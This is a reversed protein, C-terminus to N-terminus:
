ERFEQAPPLLTNTRAVVVPIGIAGRAARAVKELDIETGPGAKERLVALARTESDAVNQGDEELDSHVELYLEGSRWGAKVPENVIYVPTGVPVARYLREIDEPYMRVCGHTVQMGIGFSKREDTGHILYGKIGLRLAYAGLPNEPDGGPIVKPLVEGEMAHEDRISEPPYWAPNKEKAIVTTSGLPTKWDMRGISVPFTMVVKPPGDTPAPYYYLRLEGVNLVLGRRPAKPLIYRSPILVRTGAGPIWRDVALNASIIENYGVDFDRAIDVLTDEHEAQAYRIEGVVSDGEDRPLAYLEAFAQPSALVAWSLLGSLFALKTM